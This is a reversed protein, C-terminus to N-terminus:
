LLMRRVSNDKLVFHHYFAAGVHLILACIFADSLLRHIGHGVEKFFPDSPVAVDLLRIGFFSVTEGELNALVYGTIPMLIITVYFITVVIRFATEQYLYPFHSKVRPSKVRWILRFFGLFLLVVGLSNHIDIIGQDNSEMGNMGLLYTLGLLPAMGWHLVKLTRGYCHHNDYAPM